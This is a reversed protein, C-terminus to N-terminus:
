QARRARNVNKEGSPRRKLAQIEESSRFPTGQVRAQAPPALPRLRFGRRGRLDRDVTRRACRFDARSRTARCARVDRRARPRRDHSGARRDVRGPRRSSDSHLGRSRRDFARRSWKARDHHHATRLGAGGARGALLPRLLDAACLLREVLLLDQRRSPIGPFPGHRQSRAPNGATPLSRQRRRRLGFSPDTSGRPEAPAPGWSGRAFAQAWKFRSTTAPSCASWTSQSPAWAPQPLACRTCRATLVALRKPDIANPVVHIQRAPVHHAAEIHRKVMNSVAVVQPKRELDYQRREILRHLWYKPNAAKALLYAQRVFSPFRQANATLSGAQIGGQPIIVDHAWTNIFGISCNTIRM